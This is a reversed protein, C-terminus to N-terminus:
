SPDGSAINTSKGSSNIRKKPLEALFNSLNEENKKETPTQRHKSISPM